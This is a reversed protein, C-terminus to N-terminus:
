QPPDLLGLANEVDQPVTAADAKDMASVAFETEGFEIGSHAIFLARKLVPM